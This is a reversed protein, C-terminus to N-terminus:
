RWSCVRGTGNPGGWGGRCTLTGYQTKQSVMQNTPISGPPWVSKSYHLADPRPKREPVDPKKVCRGGQMIEGNACELPCIIGKQTSVAELTSSNPNEAPISFGTKQIFRGLSQRTQAEWRGDIEGPYCGVRKLETQLKRVFDGMDTQSGGDLIGPTLVAVKAASGREAAAVEAAARAERLTQEALVRQREAAALAAQTLQVQEAAAKLEGAKAEELAKRDRAAETRGAKKQEELAAKLDAERKAAVDRDAKAAEVSRQAESATIEANARQKEAVGLALRAAHLEDLAARLEEAQRMEKILRERELKASAAQRVFENNLREILTKATSSFMGNPFRDLYTQILAVDSSNQVKEWLETEARTKPEGTLYIRRTLGNSEWPQQSGGTAALVAEKVNQFLNLHDLGDRGFEAALAAAYPGSTTGKDSATRGPASAYAIFMGKQESVPILGKSTSKVPVQLENRCADFVIFKSANRATNLLQLIDDLKLSDDWFTPSSPDKADIPILYNVGTDSEAAGHGSYYLLGIADPGALNLSDRLRRVAGLIESRRADKVIPLLEFGRGKLAEGVVRIDNHPNGLVGVGPDYRQNAILLAVRKEQAAAFSYSFSLFALVALGALVRSRM